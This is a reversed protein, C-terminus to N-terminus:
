VTASRKEMLARLPANGSVLRPLLEPVKDRSVRRHGVEAAPRVRQSVGERPLRKTTWATDAFTETRRRANTTSPVSIEDIAAAAAVPEEEFKLEGRIVPVNAPAEIGLRVAKGKTRLVTITIDNGIRIKEQYKRTLVLM